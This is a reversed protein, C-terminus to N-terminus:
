KRLAAVIEEKLLPLPLFIDPILRNDKQTNDPRIWEKVGFNFVLGTNPASGGYMEGFHNPHGNAPIEGVLTALHNDKVTTAFMIASSFTNSGVLLYVKGKFRNKLKKPPTQTESAFRMVEGPKMDAYPQYVNGWKKILELYEDSRKWKCQYGYYPKEDFYEIILDGCQSNGGGNNSVDIIISKVKDKKIQAFIKKMDRQLQKYNKEDNVSFSCYNIYGFDGIRSYSIPTRCPYGQKSKDAYQRYTQFDTGPVLQRAKTTKVAYEPKRPFAYLYIGPFRKMAKELRQDPFGTTFSACKQLIEAIPVGDISEITDGAQLPMDPALTQEVVVAEGKKKLTLPILIRATALPTQPINVGVNAHEDSLYAFVPKVLGAFDLASLSDVIKGEIQNFLAEFALSDLETYPNAHANKVQTKLFHFDELLASASFHKESTQSQLSSFSAITILFLLFHKHM